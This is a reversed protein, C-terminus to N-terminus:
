QDGFNSPMLGRLSSKKNYFGEYPKYGSSLSLVQDVKSQRDDIKPMAISLSVGSGKNNSEKSEPKKTSTVYSNYDKKYQENKYADALLSKLKDGDTIMLDGKNSKILNNELASRSAAYREFESMKSFYDDGFLNLMGYSGWVDQAQLDALNRSTAYKNNTWMGTEPNIGVFDAATSTDVRGGMNPSSSLQKNSTDLYNNIAKSNLDRLSVQREAQVQKTSKHRLPTKNVLYGLGSGAIAGIGAGVPGGLMMGIGAGATGLGTRSSQGNSLAKYTDYGGKLALIPGAIQAFGAGAAPAEAAGVNAISAPLEGALNFGLPAEQALTYSFDGLSSIEPLISSVGQDVASSTIADIGKDIGYKIALDKLGVEQRPASVQRASGPVLMRRSGDPLEEYINGYEDQGISM